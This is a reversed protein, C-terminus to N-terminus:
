EWEDLGIADSVDDDGVEVVEFSAVEEEGVVLIKRGEEEGEGEEFGELFELHLSGGGFTKLLNGGGFDTETDGMPFLDNSEREEGVWFSKREVRLFSSILMVVIVVEVIAGSLEDEEREEVEEEREREREEERM